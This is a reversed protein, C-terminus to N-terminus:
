RWQFRIFGAPLNRRGFRTSRESSLGWEVLTTLLARSFGSTSVATVKNFNFRDKRGYLQEIWSAPAPGSSPRDRCEILWSFDTSGVKGTIEIDLEAILFGDEDYVLRRAEVKMGAPLLVEEVFAVLQELKKGDNAM